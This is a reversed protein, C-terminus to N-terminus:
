LRYQHFTESLEAIKANASLVESAAHNLADRAAAAQALMDGSSRNNLMPHFVGSVFEYVKDMRARYEVLQQVVDSRGSTLDQLAVTADHAADLTQYEPTM